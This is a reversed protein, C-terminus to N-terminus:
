WGICCPCRGGLWHPSAAASEMGATAQIRLPFDRWGHGLASTKTGGGLGYDLEYPPPAGGPGKLYHEMWQLLRLNYDLRSAARRNGHGEGPYLVLRVPAQRNVQGTIFPTSTGKADVVHLESWANGDKEKPIQRPVALVYAVQSGDPSIVAATVIRLKAIHHPTFINDQAHVAAAFVVSVLLGCVSPMFVRLRSM